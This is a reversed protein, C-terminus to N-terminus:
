KCKYVFVKKKPSLKNSVISFSYCDKKRFTYIYIETWISLARM